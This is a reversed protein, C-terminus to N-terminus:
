KNKEMKMKYVIKERDHIYKMLVPLKEDAKGMPRRVFDERREKLTLLKPLYYTVYEKELIEYSKKEKISAYAKMNGPYAGYGPIYISVRGRDDWASLIQFKYLWRAPIRFEGDADTLTEVADEVHYVSGGLTGAVTSFWVAVVAKDIPEGTEADVVKGYYPGYHHTTCRGVLLVLAVIAILVWKNRMFGHGKLFGDQGLAGGPRM